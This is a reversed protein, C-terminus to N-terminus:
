VAWADEYGQPVDAVYHPEDCRYCHSKCITEACVQRFRLDGEVTDGEWTLVSQLELSHDPHVAQIRYVAAHDVDGDARDHRAVAVHTKGPVLTIHAHEGCRYPRHALDPVPSTADSQCLIVAHGSGHSEGGMEPLAYHGHQSRFVAPITSTLLDHSISVM